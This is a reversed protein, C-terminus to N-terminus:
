PIQIVMPLRTLTFAAAESLFPELRGLLFSISLLAFLLWVVIGTVITKLIELVTSRVVKPIQRM